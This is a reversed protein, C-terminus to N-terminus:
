NDFCRYLLPLFQTFNCPFVLLAGLQPALFSYSLPLFVDLMVVRSILDHNIHVIRICTLKYYSLSSDCNKTNIDNCVM